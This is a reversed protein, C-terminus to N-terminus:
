LNLGLFFLIEDIVHCSAHTRYFSERLVSYLLCFEMIVAKKVRELKDALLANYSGILINKDFIGGNLYTNM